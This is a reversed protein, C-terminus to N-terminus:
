KKLDGPYGFALKINAMLIDPDEAEGSRRRAKKTMMDKLPPLKKTRALAEVHWALWAIRDQEIRSRYAMGRMERAAERPTVEWFRAPDCGAQVWQLHLEVWSPDEAETM